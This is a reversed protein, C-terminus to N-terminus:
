LSVVIGIRKVGSKFVYRDRVMQEVFNLPSVKARKGVLEDDDVFKRFWFFM